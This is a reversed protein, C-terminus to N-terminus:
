KYYVLHGLKSYYMHGSRCRYQSPSPAHTIADLYRRRVEEKVQECKCLRYFEAIGISFLVVVLLSSRRMNVWFIRIFMCRGLYPSLDQLQWRNICYTSSTTLHAHLLPVNRYRRIAIGPVSYSGSLLSVDVAVVVSELGLM